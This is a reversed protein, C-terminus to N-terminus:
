VERKMNKLEKKNDYMNVDAQEFVESVKHNDNIEYEAMGVALVPGQGTKLNELVKGRIEGLLVERKSYDRESLVVAFEDGGVRFVPSHAYTDCIM